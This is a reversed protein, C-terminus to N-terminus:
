KWCRGASSLFSMLFCCGTTHWHYKARSPVPDEGSLRWMPSPTTRARFPRKSILSDDRGTKGAVSHIKTTELAENLTLPPLIGSIRKALMTKGSGPPGIMILNHSGAAAIELARKVNEQGKVDKFDTENEGTSNFFELRTDVVTREILAEGSLFRVAQLFNEVGYVEIKSVVAAERANEVPLIFGKYGRKWAEIAIPLAGRIPRIAGDLALEGMLLYRDLERFEKQGTAALIGIALALDYASGEKKLDAPAMNIIIRRQPMEFGSTKLTSEIRFQSEKIANDPLGVLFFSSGQIMNVEVIIIAASVGYVAGGYTKALM